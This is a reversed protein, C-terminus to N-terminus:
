ASIRTPPFLFLRKREEYVEVEVEVEKEEGDIIRKETKKVKKPLIPMIDYTKVNDYSWSRTNEVPRRPRSLASDCRETDNDDDSGSTASLPSRVSRRSSASTPGTWASSLSSSSGSHVKLKVDPVLLKGQAGPHVLSRERRPPSSLTLSHSSSPSSPTANSNSYLSVRSESRRAFNESFKTIMDDSATRLAAPASSLASTSYSSKRFPASPRHSSATFPKLAPTERYFPDHASKPAAPIPKRPEQAPRYRGEFPKAPPPCLSTILKGAMMIGTNYERPAPEPTPEDFAPPPPPLPPFNYMKVLKDISSMPASSSSSTDSDSSSFSDQKSPKVPAAPLPEERAPDLPAAAARLEAFQCEDSCYLPSPGQDIVTRQKMVVPPAASKITGNPRLRGTGNVLGGTRGKTRKPSPPPAPTHSPLPVPVSITYRKPAIQRDCVPCWAVDFDM